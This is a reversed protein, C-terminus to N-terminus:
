KKSVVEQKRPIFCEKQTMLAVQLMMVTIALSKGCFKSDRPEITQNSGIEAVLDIM